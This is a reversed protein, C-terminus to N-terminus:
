AISHVVHDIGFRESEASLTGPTGSLQIDFAHKLEHIIAVYLTVLMGVATLALAGLPAVHLLLSTQNHIHASGRATMRMLFAITDPTEADAHKLMRMTALRCMGSVRPRRGGDHVGSPTAPLTTIVTV